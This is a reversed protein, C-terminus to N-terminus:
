TPKKRLQVKVGKGSVRGTWKDREKSSSSQSKKKEGKKGEVKLKAEM